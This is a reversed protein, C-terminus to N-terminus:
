ELFMVGHGTPQQYQHRNDEIPSDQRASKNRVVNLLDQFVRKDLVWMEPLPNKQPPHPREGPAHGLAAEVPGKVHEGIPEDAPGISEIRGRVV